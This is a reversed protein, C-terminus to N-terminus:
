RKNFSINDNNYMYEVTVKKKVESVFLIISSTGRIIRISFQRIITKNAIRVGLIKTKM